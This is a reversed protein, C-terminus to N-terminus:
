FEPFFKLCRYNGSPSEQDMEKSVCKLGFNGSTPPSPMKLANVGQPQIVASAIVPHGSMKPRACLCPPCAREPPKSGKKLAPTKREPSFINRGRPSFTQGCFVFRPDWCAYYVPLHELCCCFVLSSINLGGAPFPNLFPPCALRKPPILGEACSLFERHPVRCLMVRGSPSCCVRERDYVSSAFPSLSLSLLCVSM